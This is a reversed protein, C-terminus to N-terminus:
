KSRRRTIISKLNSINDEEKMSSVKQKHAQSCCTCPYVFIDLVVVSRFSWVHVSRFLRVRNSKSDNRRTAPFIYMCIYIYTNTFDGSLPQQRLFRHETCAPTKDQRTKTPLGCTSWHSVQCQGGRFPLAHVLSPASHYLPWGVRSPPLRTPQLQVTM